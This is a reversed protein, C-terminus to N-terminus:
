PRRRERRIPLGHKQMGAGFENQLVCFKKGHSGSLLWNVQGEHAHMRAYTLELTRALGLIATSFCLLIGDVCISARPISPSHAPLHSHAHGRQTRSHLHPHAHMCAPARARPRVPTSLGRAAFSILLLASFAYAKPGMDSKSQDFVRISCPALRCGAM